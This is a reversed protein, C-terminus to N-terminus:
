CTIGLAPVRGTALYPQVVDPYCNSGFSTHGAGRHTVLVASKLQAAMGVAWEYPTAPDGTTGIVVLPPAEPATVKGLGAPSDVPWVACEVDLGSFPGLIPAQRAAVTADRRATALGTNPEDACESAPFGYAFQTWSGNERGLLQDALGLLGSGDGHRIADVLASELRPYAPKGGYLAAIV